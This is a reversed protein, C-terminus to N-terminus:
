ISADYNSGKMINMTASFRGIPPKGGPAGPNTVRVHGM